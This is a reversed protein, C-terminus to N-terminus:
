SWAPTKSKKMQRVGRDLQQSGHVDRNTLTQGADRASIKDWSSASPRQAKRKERAM